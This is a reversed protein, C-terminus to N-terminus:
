AFLRAVPLSWGPLLAAATLMDTVGLVRDPGEAALVHVQQQAPDVLWLEQAGAHFYQRVKRAMEAANDSPSIVEIALDPAGPFFADARAAKAREACTYSVDPARLVDPDRALLFGLEVDVRGGHAAAWTELSAALRVTARSHPPKVPSMEILVGEDLERRLDGENALTALDAAQLPSPPAGSRM